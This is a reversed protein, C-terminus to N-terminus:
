FDNFEDDLEDDSENDFEDDSEDSEDFEDFENDFWMFSVKEDFEHDFRQDLYFDILDGESIFDSVM